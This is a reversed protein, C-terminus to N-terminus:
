ARQEFCGENIAIRRELATTRIGTGARVLGSIVPLLPHMNGSDDQIGDREVVTLADNLLRDLRARLSPPSQNM